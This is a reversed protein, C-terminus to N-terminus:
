EERSQANLRACDVGLASALLGVVAIGAVALRAKM